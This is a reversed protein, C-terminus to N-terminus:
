WRVRGYANPSLEFTFKAASGDSHERFPARREQANVFARTNRNIVCLAIHALHIDRADDRLKQVYVLEQSEIKISTRCASLHSCLWRLSSHRMICHQM